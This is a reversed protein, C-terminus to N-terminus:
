TEKIKQFLARLPVNITFCVLETIPIHMNLYQRAMWYSTGQIPRIHNNDDEIDEYILCINCCYYSKLVIHNHTLAKLETPPIYYSSVLCIHM